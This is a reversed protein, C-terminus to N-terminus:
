LTEKNRLKATLIELFKKCSDFDVFYYVKGKFGDSHASATNTNGPIRKIRVGDFYDNKINKMKDESDASSVM